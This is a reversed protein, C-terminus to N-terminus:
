HSQRKITTDVDQTKIVARLTSVTTAILLISLPLAAWLIIQQFWTMNNYGREYVSM